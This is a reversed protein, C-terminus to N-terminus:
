SIVSSIRLPRRFPERGQEDPVALFLLSLLQRRSPLFLHVECLHALRTLLHRLGSFSPTHISPYLCQFVYQGVDSRVGFSDNRVVVRVDFIGQIRPTYIVPSGLPNGQNLQSTTHLEKTFKLDESM